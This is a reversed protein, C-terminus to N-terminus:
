YRFKNLKEETMPFPYNRLKEPNQLLTAMDTKWMEDSVPIEGLLNRIMATFADVSEIGLLTLITQVDKENDFTSLLGPLFMGVARGHSVGMEYTIPYSLGHPISTGAHAISIGGLVSAQMFTEFAADDMARFAEETAIQEKVIGWLRMGEAAYMRSFPSATTNLYSEIMHALADVCCSVMGRYSSTKLYSADVLALDAFVHHAMSKKTNSDHLTLIAYPTVESGTGSTTPVAAIPYCSLAKPAYLFTRANPIEDPNKALLAIAKSADMPSGGGVGIFFDVGAEVAMKAAKVATEVSPNEEIDDFIVYPVNGNELATTVAALSGNKRSSTHGTVIMAKTGLSCLEAAHNQVANKELFVKTPLYLKM